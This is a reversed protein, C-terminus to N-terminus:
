LVEVTVSPLFNEYAGTIENRACIKKTSLFNGFNRYIKGKFRFLNTKKVKALIMKKNTEM